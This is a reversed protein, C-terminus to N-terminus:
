TKTAGVESMLRLMSKNVDSIQTEVGQKLRRVNQIQVDLAQNNTITEVNDNYRKIDAKTTELQHQLLEIKSDCTKIDGDLRDRVIILRKHEDIWQKWQQFQEEVGEWSDLTQQIGTAVITAQKVNELLESITEKAKIADKVFSNDCCFECNPDYKHNDLHNIKEEALGLHLKATSYVKEAEVLAKQERQYNSYVIEIDTGNITVKSDIM